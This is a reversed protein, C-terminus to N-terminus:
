NEKNLFAILIIEMIIIWSINLTDYFSLIELVNIIILLDQTVHLSIPYHM